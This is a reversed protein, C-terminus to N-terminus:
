SNDDMISLKIDAGAQFFAVMTDILYQGANSLKMYPRVLDTWIDYLDRALIVFRNKSDDTKDELLDYVNKWLGGDYIDAHGLSSIDEDNVWKQAYYMGCVLLNTAIGFYYSTPNKELGSKFEADGLWSIVCTKGAAILEHNMVPSEDAFGLDLAAAHMRTVATEFLGVPTQFERGAM